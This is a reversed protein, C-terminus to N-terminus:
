RYCYALCQELDGFEYTFNTETAIKHNKVGCSGTIIVSMEGLLLRLLFAPVGFPWVPRKLQKAIAKTLVLNSVPKPAVANYVGRYNENEIMYIFMRCLDDLAIWSNLQKGSGLPAGAFMKIPLAMQPLAGGRETLVVGIRLAVTRVQMGPFEFIEKEWAETVKALFDDAPPDTEEFLDQGNNFGYYGVASASILAEPLKKGYEIAKYLLRTSAVRSDLIEKKREATWRKDAVGAGALHVITDAFEMAAPDIYDKEIDWLFQKYDSKSNNVSRTLHGVTYGKTVLLESLRMGVLGTGGTILINKSM